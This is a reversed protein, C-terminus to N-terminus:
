ENENNEDIAGFQTESDDQPLVVCSETENDLNEKKNKALERAVRQEERKKIAKLKAEQQAVEVATQWTHIVTPRFKETVVSLLSEDGNFSNSANELDEDYEILAQM